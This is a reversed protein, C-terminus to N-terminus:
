QQGREVRLVDVIYSSGKCSMSIWYKEIRACTKQVQLNNSIPCICSWLCSPPTPTRTPMTCHSQLGFFGVMGVWGVLHMQPRGASSCPMVSCPMFEIAHLCPVHSHSLLYCHFPMLWSKALPAFELPAVPAYPLYAGRATLPSNSAGRRGLFM